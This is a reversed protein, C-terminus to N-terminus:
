TCGDDYSLKERVIMSAHSASVSTTAFPALSDDRPVAFPGSAPSVKASALLERLAKREDASSGSAAAHGRAAAAAVVHELVVLPVGDEVADLLARLMSAPRIRSSRPAAHADQHHRRIRRDAVPDRAVRHLFDRGEEVRAVVDLHERRPRRRRMMVERQAARAARERQGLTHMAVVPHDDLEVGVEEIRQREVFAITQEHGCAQHGRKARFRLTSIRSWSIFKSQPRSGPVKPRSHRKRHRSGTAIVTCVSCSCCRTASDVPSGSSRPRPAPGRAESRVARSWRGSRLARGARCRRTSTRTRRSRSRGVACPNRGPRERTRRARLDRSGARRRRIPARRRAPLEHLVCDASRRETSAVRPACM